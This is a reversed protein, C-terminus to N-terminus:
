PFQTLFNKGQAISTILEILGDIDDRSFTRYGPIKRDSVVALIKGNPPIDMKDENLVVIKDTPSTRFGEILIVDYGEFFRYIEELKRGGEMILATKDKSVIAVDAGSQWIRYSDKGKKDIDFNNKAHKIAAVRYGKEKLLPVLRTILTTKGSGSNGVVSIVIM